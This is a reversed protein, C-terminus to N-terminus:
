LNQFEEKFILKKMGRDISRCSTLNIQKLSKVEKVLMRIMDTDVTTGTLNLKELKCKNSNLRFCEFIKALARQDITSWSLDLEILSNFWKEEIAQYLYNSDIDSMMSNCLFLKELNKSSILSFFNFNKDLSTKYCRLDMLKLKQSDKCIKTTLMIMPCTGYNVYFSGYYEELNPFSIESALVSTITNFKTKPFTEYMKLCKFNKCKLSILELQVNGKLVCKSIDLTELNECHSTLANVLNSPLSNLSLDLGLLKGNVKSFLYTLSVINIQKGLGSLNLFKLNECYDGIVNEFLKNSTSCTLKKCNALSLDFINKSNCNSLILELHDCTLYFVDSLNLIRIYNFKLRFQTNLCLSKIKLDIKNIIQNITIKDNTNTLLEPDLLCSFKLNHWLKADDAVTSWNRCVKKLNNLENINGNLNSAYLKFIQFLIEYPIGDAWNSNFNSFTERNIESDQDNINSRLRRRTRVVKKFEYQENEPEFDVDQTEDDTESSDGLDKIFFLINTRKTFGLLGKKKKKKNRKEPFTSKRKPSM